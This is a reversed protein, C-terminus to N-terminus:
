FAHKLFVVAFVYLEMRSRLADSKICNQKRSSGYLKYYKNLNLDIFGRKPMGHNRTVKKKKKKFTKAAEVQSQMLSGM